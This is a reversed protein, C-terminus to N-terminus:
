PRTIQGSPLGTGPASTRAKSTSKKQHHSDLECTPGATTVSAFPCKVILNLHHQPQDGHQHHSSRRQRRSGSSTSLIRGTRLRWGSRFNLSGLGSTENSKEPSLIVGGVG